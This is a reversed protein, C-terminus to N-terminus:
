QKVARAAANYEKVYTEIEHFLLEKKAKIKGTLESNDSLYEIFHNKNQEDVEYNSYDKGRLASIPPAAILFTPLTGKKLCYMPTFVKYTSGGMGASGNAGMVFTESLSVSFGKSINITGYEIIEVWGILQKKHQLPKKQVSKDTFNFYKFKQSELSFYRLTDMNKDDATIWFSNKNTEPDTCFWVKQVMGEVTTQISVFGELTDKQNKLVISGKKWPTSENLDYSLQSFLRSNCFCVFFLYLIKKNM